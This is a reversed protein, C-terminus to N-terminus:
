KKIKTDKTEKIEIIEDPFRTQLHELIAQSLETKSTFPNDSKGYAHIEVGEKIALM